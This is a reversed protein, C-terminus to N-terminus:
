TYKLDDFRCSIAVFLNFDFTLPTQFINAHMFCAHFLMTRTRIVITRNGCPLRVADTRIRVPRGATALFNKSNTPSGYLSTPSGYPQRAFEYPQRAFESDTFRRNRLATRCDYSPRVFMTRSGHSWQSNQQSAAIQRHDAQTKSRVFESPFILRM